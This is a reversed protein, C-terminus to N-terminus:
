SCAVRVCGGVEETHEGLAPVPRSPTPDSGIFDVPAAVQVVATRGAAIDRESMPVNVFSGTAVAQPDEYAEQPNNVKQYWVEERDFAASWYAFDNTKFVADMEALLVKQKKRRDGGTKYDGSDIWDAKGM